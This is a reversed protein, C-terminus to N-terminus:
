RDVMLMRGFLGQIELKFDWCHICVWNSILNAWEEPKLWYVLVQARQGAVWEALGEKVMEGVLEKLFELNLKGVRSFVCLRHVLCLVSSMRRIQKNSFIPIKDLSEQNVDLRWVRKARHYQLILNIWASKQSAYTQANPQRTFFPPFSYIPPEEFAIDGM